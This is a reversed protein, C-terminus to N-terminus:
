RGPKIPLNSCIAQYPLINDIYQMWEEHTLNRTVRSCAVDILDKPRFIWVRATGDEGGSVVYRGDPSFAVSEVYGAHVMHTIEAGTTANWVRATGDYSGSVVYQSDPSFAVSWVADSHIMRSIEMGTTLEWVKVIHQM